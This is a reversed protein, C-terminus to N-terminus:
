GMHLCGDLRLFRTICGSLAYVPALILPWGFPYRTPLVENPPNILGYDRGEAISKSLVMYEADDMYTGVQFSDFRWLYLGLSVAILLVLATVCSRCVWSKTM